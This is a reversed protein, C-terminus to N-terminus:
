TAARKPKVNPDPYKIYRGIINFSYFRLKSWLGSWVWEASVIGHVRAKTENKWSELENEGERWVGTEGGHPVGADDPKACAAWVKM